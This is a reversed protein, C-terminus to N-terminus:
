RLHPVSLLTSPVQAPKDEQGALSSSMFIAPLFHPAKQLLCLDHRLGFHGTKKEKKLPPLKQAHPPGLLIGWINPTSKSILAPAQKQDPARYTSSPSSRASACSLSCPLSPLPCSHGQQMVHCVCQLEGTPGSHDPFHTPLLSQKTM